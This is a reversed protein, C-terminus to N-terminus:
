QLPTIKIKFKDYIKDYIIYFYTNVIYKANKKDPELGAVLM